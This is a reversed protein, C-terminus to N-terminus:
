KAELAKELAETEQARIQALRVKHNAEAIERNRRNETRNTLTKSLSVNDTLTGIYWMVAVPWILAALGTGIRPESECIARDLKPYAMGAGFLYVTISGIIILALLM